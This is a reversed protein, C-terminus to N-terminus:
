TRAVGEVPEDRYLASGAITAVPIQVANWIIFYLLLRADPTWGTSLGFPPFLVGILFAMLGATAATKIGAGLRPLIAAYLLVCGMGLALARIVFVPWPTNDASASGSAFLFATGGAAIVSGAALGGLVIRKSNM